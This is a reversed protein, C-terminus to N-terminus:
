GATCLPRVLVVHKRLSIADDHCAGQLVATRSVIARASRPTVWLELVSRGRKNCGIYFPMAKICIGERSCSDRVMGVRKAASSAATARASHQVNGSAAHSPPEKLSEWAALGAATCIASMGSYEPASRMSTLLLSGPKVSSSKLRPANMSNESRSKSPRQPAANARMPISVNLLAGRPSM